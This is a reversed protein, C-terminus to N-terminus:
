RRGRTAAADPGVGLRDCRWREQSGTGPISGSRCSTRTHLSFDPACRAVERGCGATRGKRKRCKLPRARALVRGLSAPSGDRGLRHIVVKRKSPLKPSFYRCGPASRAAGHRAAGRCSPPGRGTMFICRPPRRVVAAYRENYAAGVPGPAERSFAPRAPRLQRSSRARDQRHGGRRSCGPTSRARIRRHRNARRSEVM